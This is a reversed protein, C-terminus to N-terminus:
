SVLILLHLSQYCIETLANRKCFTQKKGHEPCQDTKLKLPEVYYLDIIDARACLSKNCVAVCEIM